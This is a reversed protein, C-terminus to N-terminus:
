QKDNIWMCLQDWINVNRMDKEPNEFVFLGGHGNPKYMRNNFIDLRENVNEEDYMNDTEGLLGMSKVMSWFLDPVSTKFNEDARLALATMMELISCREGLVEPVTVDCSMPYYKEWAFRWRLDYGDNERPWDNPDKVVFAVTHLKKILKKHVAVMWKRDDDILSEIWSLYGDETNM